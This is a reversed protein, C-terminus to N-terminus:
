FAHTLLRHLRPPSLYPPTTWRLGMLRTFPKIIVWICLCWKIRFIIRLKTERGGQQTPTPHSPPVSGREREGREGGRRLMFNVKGQRSTHRQARQVSGRKPDSFVNSNHCMQTTNMVNQGVLFYKLKELGVFVCFPNQACVVNGVGVGPDTPM